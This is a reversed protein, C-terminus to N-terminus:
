PPHLPLLLSDLLSSSVHLSFTVLFSFVFANLHFYVTRSSEQKWDNFFLLMEFESETWPVGCIQEEKLKKTRRDSDYVM